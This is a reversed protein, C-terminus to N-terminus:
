KDQKTDPIYRPKIRDKTRKYWSWRSKVYYSATNNHYRKLYKKINYDKTFYLSTNYSIINKIEQLQDNNCGRKVGIVNYLYLGAELCDYMYCYESIHLLENDINNYKRFILLKFNCGNNYDNQLEKNYHKNTKLLQEHSAIRQKIYQSSGIYICPKNDCLIAYVGAGRYNSKLM